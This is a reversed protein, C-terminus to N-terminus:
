FVKKEINNKVIRAPNGVAIVSDKINHFVVSSMSIISDKGIKLGQKIMAGIGIFTRKGIFSAGGINVNSSISCNESIHIDHGVITNVNICVNDDIQANCAIICGSCVIIGKGMKCYPSIIVSPDILNTLEYNNKLVKKFLKERLFPEGVAIIIEINKINYFNSMQEFSMMEVNNINIKAEGIDEIFIIKTWSKNIQNVRLAIDYVERGFGGSGYIGLVKNKFLEGMLM